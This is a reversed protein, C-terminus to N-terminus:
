QYLSLPVELLELVQKQTGTLKAPFVIVEEGKTVEYREVHKFLRVIDYTTPYECPREEPYISLSEIGKKKMALRLQREILTAVMLSMVHMHLYAIVREPKKLFVPAIEQYTKLQSHRKELFPQYKYINLVKAPSHKQLNTILPFIGDALSEKIVNEVNIEFSLTYYEKLMTKGKANAEPRGVSSFKTYEEQGANIQYDILGACHNQQLIAQIRKEIADKTKLSYRNLGAQISKLAELSKNINNIRQENDLQSKQSSKIWLLRYGQETSYEGKALYFIDKESDGKRNNKKELLFGWKIKKNKVKNLFAISERWTKPMVSVFLGGLANIKGLNTATALKCDAVYIFDSRQLLKRLRNHNELHVRDDTQNGDYIKHVLPISGDATVSIGLVLQKLDPRYDKNIGHTLLPSYPWPRYTGHFTVTTTDQHIQQCDIDFLKIARLALRFFIEKHKSKYLTLLAKGIRDDNLCSVKNPEFNLHELDLPQLWDPIEYLPAPSTLINHILVILPKDHTLDMRADYPLYSSLIDPLNLKNIFFSIIPHAGLVYRQLTTDKKINKQTIMNVM